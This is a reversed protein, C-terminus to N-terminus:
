SNGNEVESLEFHPLDHFSQDKFENDSDWDGGWRIKIGLRAATGKVFGAFYYFRNKDNWDVPYPIVDVALSPTQNHKSLPWELKSRGDHVMKNQEEESRFGEIVSCDVHKIVESFLRQLDPHAESLNKMSRQGFKFSM